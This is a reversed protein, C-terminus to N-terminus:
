LASLTAAIVEDDSSSVTRLDLLVRDHEIRAIIPPSAARLREELQDPTTGHKAIAVLWTAVETGPASGGGVASSGSVVDLTWEPLGSLRAALTRARPLIDDATLALMRRVPITRDARGAAYEALTADLAAFTMKDPRLARMLPHARIRRVLEARGVIIGAQPGGLLKDGSFCCVDVGASVNARVSPEVALAGAGADLLGSGLDEAVPIGFTRGVNVIEDVDRVNPSGKSISIRRTSVSCCRPGITLRPRM